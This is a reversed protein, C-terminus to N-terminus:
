AACAIIGATHGGPPPDGPASADVAALTRYPPDEPPPAPDDDIYPVLLPGDVASFLTGRPVKLVDELRGAKRVELVTHRGVYVQNLRQVSMGAAAALDTQTCGTADIRRRLDDQERVCVYASM